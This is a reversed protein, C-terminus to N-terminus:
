GETPAASMEEGGGTQAAGDTGTTDVGVEAGSSTGVGETMGVGAPTCGAIALVGLFSRSGLM